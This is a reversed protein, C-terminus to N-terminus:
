GDVPEGADAAGRHDRHAGARSPRPDGLLEFVPILLDVSQGGRQV